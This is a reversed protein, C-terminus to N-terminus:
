YMDESRGVTASTDFLEHNRSAHIPQELAFEIDYGLGLAIGTTSLVVGAVGIEPAIALLTAVVAEDDAGAARADAVHRRYQQDDAGTAILAALRVLALTKSDLLLVAKDEGGIVPDM